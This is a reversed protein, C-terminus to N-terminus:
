GRGATDDKARTLRDLKDYTYTWDAGSNGGLAELRQQQRQLGGARGHEDLRDLDLPAAAFRERRREIQACGGLDDWRARRLCRSGSRRPVGGRRGSRVGAARRDCLSGACDRGQQEDGVDGEAAGDPGRGGPAQGITHHPLSWGANLVCPSRRASRRNRGSLDRRAGARTSRRIRAGRCSCPARRPWRPRVPATGDRGEEAGGHQRWGTLFWCRGRRRLRGRAEEADDDAAGAGDGDHLDSVRRRNPEAHLVLDLPPRDGADLRLPHHHLPSALHRRDSHVWYGFSM